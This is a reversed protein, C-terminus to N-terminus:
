LAGRLAARVERLQTRREEAADVAWDMRRALAAYWGAVFEVYTQPYLSDERHMGGGDGPRAPGAFRDVNGAWTLAEEQTLLREEHRLRATPSASPHSFKLYVGPTRTRDGKGEPHAEPPIVFRLGIVAEDSFSGDAELLMTDMRERDKKLQEDSRSV